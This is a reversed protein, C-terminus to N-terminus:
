PSGQTTMLPEKGNQACKLLAMEAEWLRVEMRRVQECATHSKQLYQAQHERATELALRAQNLEEVKQLLKQM